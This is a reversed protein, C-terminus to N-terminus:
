ILLIIMPFYVLILASPLNSVEPAAPSTLDITVDLSNRVSTENGASDKLTYTLIWSGETLEFGEGDDFVGNFVGDGDAIDTWTILTAEPPDDGAVSGSVYFNTFGKQAYLKVSDRKFPELGNM